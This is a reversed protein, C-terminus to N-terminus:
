LKLLRVGVHVSTDEFWPENVAEVIKEAADSAVVENVETPSDNASGLVWSM